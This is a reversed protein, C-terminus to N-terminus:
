SWKQMEESPSLGLAAFRRVLSRTGSKLAGKAVVDLGISIPMPIAFPIIPNRELMYLVQRSYMDAALSQLQRRRAATWRPARAELYLHSYAEHRTEDRHVKPLFAGLLPDRTSRWMTPMAHVSITELILAGLIFAEADLTEAWELTEILRPDAPRVLGLKRQYRGFV